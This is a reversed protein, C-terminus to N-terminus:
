ATLDVVEPCDYLMLPDIDLCDEPGAEGIDWALTDNMIRCKGIFVELDKLKKFIGKELNPAMDYLTIKGDAFYVWVTYDEHPVVQVIEKIM